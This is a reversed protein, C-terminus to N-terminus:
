YHPPPKEEAQPIVTAERLSEIRQKLEEVVLLLQDIQQQQQTVVTNLQEITHDQFALKSELEAIRDEM